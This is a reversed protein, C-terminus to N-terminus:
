DGIREKLLQEIFPEIEKTVAEYETTFLLRKKTETLITKGSYPYDHLNVTGFIFQSNKPRQTFAFKIMANINKPDQDQHQATDFIIPAVVATSFEFITHLIAYHYALILRPLESGTDNVVPRLKKFMSEPPAQINLEACFLRLKSSYFDRIESRRKVSSLSKMTVEALRIKEDISGIQIDIKAKEDELSEGAIRRSEHQLMARLTLKGRAEGLILDIEAIERQYNKLSETKESIEKSVKEIEVLVSELYERCTEEDGILRLTNAFSTEHVTNCTPCVIEATDIKRLYAVDAKLEQLTAIALAREQLFQSRKGQLDRIEIRTKERVENFANQRELYRAIENEFVKPDFSLDSDLTLAKLRQQAFELSNRMKMQEVRENSAIDRAAKSHYYEKPQVGTHFDILTDKYDKFADLGAFSAWTDSLGTDQDIYFPMFLAAPWPAVLNGHKNPFQVELDIMKGITEASKTVGQHISIPLRNSDFIAITKGVRLSFYTIGDVDFQLLLKVEACQWSDNNKKADAGLSAYISKILSSKGTGNSGRVVNEASDFIETRASREKDSVIWLRKFSLKKM